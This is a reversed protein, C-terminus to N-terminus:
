KHSETLIKFAVFALIAGLVWKQAIIWKPNKNFFNAMTGSSLIVLGNMCFSAFIKIIGLCFFQLYLHGIKPNIFQPLISVFLVMAKPNLINTFFGMLYLTKPSDQHLHKVEFISKSNPRIALWALYSIYIAGSYKIVDFAYPVNLILASVGIASLFIFIISATQVGLLSIFGARAGQSISRSILYMMNPGPSSAMAFAVLGYGVLLSFDYVM